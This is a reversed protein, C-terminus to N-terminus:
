RVSRGILWPTLTIVARPRKYGLGEGLRNRAISM